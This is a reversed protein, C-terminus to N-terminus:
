LIYLCIYKAGRITFKYTNYIINWTHAITHLWSYNLLAVIVHCAHTRMRLSFKASNRLTQYQERMARSRRTSWEQRRGIIGFQRKKGNRVKRRLQGCTSGTGCCSRTSTKDPPWDTGHVLASRKKESIKEMKHLGSNLIIKRVYICSDQMALYIKCM